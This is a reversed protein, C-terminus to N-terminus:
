HENIQDAEVGHRQRSERPLSLRCSWQKRLCISCPSDRDPSLRDVGVARPRPSEAVTCGIQNMRLWTDDAKRHWWCRCCRQVEEGERRRTSRSHGATKHATLTTGGLNVTDGDHFVRDVHAPPNPPMSGSAALFDTRGGSEVVEADGEMVMNKAPTERLIEAAGGMHNFHAQGNLLIKTDAWRFGLKKISTRIQPPSTELNANILINGVQTTVLYAALDESGVYYLHDAIQFPPLPTAVRNNGAAPSCTTNATLGRSSKEM